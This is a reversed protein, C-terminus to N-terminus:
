RSSRSEQSPVRLLPVPLPLCLRLFRVASVVYEEETATLYRPRGAPVLDLNFKSKLRWGQLTSRPPCQDGYETQRPLSPAFHLPPPFLQFSAYTRGQLFQKALLQKKAPAWHAWPSTKNPGRTLAPKTAQKALASAVLGDVVRAGDEAKKDKPGLFKYM